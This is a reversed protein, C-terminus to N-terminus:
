TILQKLKQVQTRITVRKESASAINQRKNSDLGNSSTNAVLVPTVIFIFCFLICLLIKKM